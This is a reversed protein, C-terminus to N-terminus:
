GYRIVESYVGLLSLDQAIGARVSKFLACGVADTFSDKVYTNFLKLTATPARAQVLDALPKIAGGSLAKFWKFLKRLDTSPVSNVDEQFAELLHVAPLSELAFNLATDIHM